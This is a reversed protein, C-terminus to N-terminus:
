EVLVLTDEGMREDAARQGWTGMTREPMGGNGDQSLSGGYMGGM